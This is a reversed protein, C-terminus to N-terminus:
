VINEELTENSYHRNAGNVERDFEIRNISNEYFIIQLDMTETLCNVSSFWIKQSNKKYIKYVYQTDYTVSQVNISKLIM